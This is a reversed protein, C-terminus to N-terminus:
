LEAIAYCRGNEVDGEVLRAVVKEAVADAAALRGSAHFERFMDASPLREITQARLEAQMPTDIIGPRLTIARLGSQGHEAALARTLMELGAKAISYLAAGAIPAQAAGSSVNVIRRDCQPDVFARCFCDAVITPAALNVDLDTAIAAAGLSGLVGVGHATAANNVLCVATPAGAAVRAFARDLLEGLRDVHALDAEVLAFRSHAVRPSARRGVGVVDYGNALLRVALAEGLGSSVGTVIAAARM